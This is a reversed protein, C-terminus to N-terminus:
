KEANRRMEDGQSRKGRKGANAANRVPEKMVADGDQEGGRM